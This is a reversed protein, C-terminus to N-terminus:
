PLAPTAPGTPQPAPGALTGARQRFARSIKASVLVPAGEAALALDPSDAALELLALPNGAMADHLWRATGPPVGPLLMAAEHSTLGRLQLVPLDAGDLLSPEGERVTVIIAIPDAVLRRFAFLLAQASSDDLWHADDVLVAVPGPEAYAALLSLTAAGVAFREQAPGRRLALAGELAALASDIEQREQGPRAAYISELSRICARFIARFVLHGGPLPVPWRSRLTAGPAIM